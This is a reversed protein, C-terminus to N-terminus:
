ENPNLNLTPQTSCKQTTLSLCKINNSANVPGTIFGIFIKKIIGFM